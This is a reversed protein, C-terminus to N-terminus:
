RRLGLEKILERYGNLDTSAYYKLLRKRKSVLTILGKTSHNDKKHEKLHETLNRIRESLMAVQARVSGSDQESKGFSGILEAKKEKSISAMKAM